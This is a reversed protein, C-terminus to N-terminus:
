NNVGTDTKFSSPAKLLVSGSQNRIESSFFLNSRSRAHRTRRNIVLNSLLSIPLKQYSVRVEYDQSVSETITQHSSAVHLAIM